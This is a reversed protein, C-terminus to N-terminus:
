YIIPGSAFGFSKSTCANWQNCGDLTKCGNGCKDDCTTCTIGSRIPFTCTGSCTAVGVVDSRRRLAAVKVQETPRIPKGYDDFYVSFSYAQTSSSVVYTIGAAEDEITTQSLTPAGVNILNVAYPLLSVLQENSLPYQISFNAGPKVPEVLPVNKCGCLWLTSALGIQGVVNRMIGRPM